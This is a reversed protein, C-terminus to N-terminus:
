FSLTAVVYDRYAAPEVQAGAPILGYLTITTSGFGGFSVGNNAHCGLPITHGADLYIGYPLRGADSYGLTVPDLSLMRRSPVLPCGFELPSLGDDLHLEFSSGATCTTDLTVTGTVPSGALNSATYDGFALSGSTFVTCAADVQASVQFQSNLTGATSAPVLAASVCIATFLFATSKM